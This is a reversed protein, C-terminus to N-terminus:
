RAPAASATTANAAAAASATRRVGEVAPQYKPNVSAAFAFADHAMAPKGLKELALGQNTWGEVSNMDRMVVLNFDDLASM